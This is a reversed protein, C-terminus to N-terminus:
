EKNIWNKLDSLVQDFAAGAKTELRNGGLFRRTVILEVLNGHDDCYITKWTNRPKPIILEPKKSEFGVDKQCASCRRGQQFQTWSMLFEHKNPCIVKMLAKCHFYKDLLQFGEKEFQTKIWAPDHQKGSFGVRGDKKDPKKLDSKSSKSTKSPQPNIKNREYWCKPCRQGQRFHTWTIAGEHGNPCVYSLKTKADVYNNLLKYGALSFKERVLKPDVGM